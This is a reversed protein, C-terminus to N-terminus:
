LAPAIYGFPVQMACGNTMSKFDLLVIAGSVLPSQEKWGHTPPCPAPSMLPTVAPVGPVVELLPLSHWSRSTQITTSRKSLAAQQLRDLHRLQRSVALPRTTPASPSWRPIGLFFLSLSPTKTTLPLSVGTVHPRAQDASPRLRSCTTPM